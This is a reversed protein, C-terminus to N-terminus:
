QLKLYNSTGPPGILAINEKKRIFECTVLSYIAQKNISPQYSFNFEEITRDQPFKAM